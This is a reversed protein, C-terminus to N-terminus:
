AKTIAMGQGEFMKLRNTLAQDRQAATEYTNVVMDNGDLGTRLGPAGENSPELIIDQEGTPNQIIYRM